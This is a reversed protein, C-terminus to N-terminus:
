RFGEQVNEALQGIIKEEKEEMHRGHVEYYFKGFMEAISGMGQEQGLEELQKKTRSNEVKMELLNPFVRSLQERPQYPLIEDTITISVYDECGKVLLEKLTGSLCIVDRIPHLPYMKILPQEGKGEMTVVTLCKEDFSESAAYKLPTGCYRFYEKGVAQTKHIHGMAVYDFREVASIDVNGIGGVYISESESRLPSVGSATYFQHTVLVNRRSYDIEERELLKKVAETYSLIEDEEFVGQVYAPKIFPLLWFDVEGWEDKETVKRLHDSVAMPPLGGIYLHQKELLYSAFDLREPSDHNGSILLIDTGLDSLERLFTNFVAVAEASPVSKDYIDGAIVIAQPKLKEAYDRIERLIAEQDEKLSYLHLQRGIHLDSLHFFIM